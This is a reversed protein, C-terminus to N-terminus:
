KTLVYLLASYQGLFSIQLFGLTTLDFYLWATFMNWLITFLSPKKNYVLRGIYFFFNRSLCSLFDFQMEVTFLINYMQLKIEINHLLM